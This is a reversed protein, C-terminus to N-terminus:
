KFLISSYKFSIIMEDFQKIFDQGLNGHLHSVLGGINDIHLNLGDLKAEATGIKLKVDNITYGEFVASGGASGSSLSMKLFNADINEKYDSYFLSFLSTKKAGTDFSFRLMDGKYQCSVVPMFGDLAFNNLSYDTTIKPVFINKSKTIRIEEMAKIVPFGIIGKIAYDIQPFSLDEDNFVLFVVNNFVLGDIFITDAVALDSKVKVGTAATVLFDAELVRLGFKKALSRQIVSFNAGTDFVVDLAEDKFGLKINFLGVKDRNMAINVDKDKHCIQAPTKDLAKWMKYTNNLEERHASDLLSHYKKMILNSTKAANKYDYLNVENQLKVLYLDKMLSDNISIKSLSLLEKIDNNSAQPNNFLKNIIASYYLSHEKSLSDSNAKYYDKLKFFDQNIVLTKIEGLCVPDSRKLNFSACSSFIILSCIVVIIKNM